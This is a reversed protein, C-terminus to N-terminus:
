APERRAEAEAGNELLELLRPLAEAENYAPLVVIVM